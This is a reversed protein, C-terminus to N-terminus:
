AGVTNTMIRVFGWVSLIVFLAVLPAAISVIGWITFTRKRKLNSKESAGTILLIIGLPIGIIATIVSLAILIQIIVNLINITSESM